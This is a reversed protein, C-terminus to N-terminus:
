STGFNGCGAPMGLFMEIGAPRPFECRQPELKMLFQSSNIGRVDKGLVDTRCAPLIKM